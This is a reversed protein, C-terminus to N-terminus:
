FYDKKRFGKKLAELHEVFLRKSDEIKESEKYRELRKRDVLVFIAAAQTKCLPSEAIYVDKRKSAKKKVWYVKIHFFGKKM